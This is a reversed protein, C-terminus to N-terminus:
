ISIIILFLVVSNECGVVVGVCSILFIFMVQREVLEITQKM